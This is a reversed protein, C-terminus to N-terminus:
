RTKREYKCNEREPKGNHTAYKCRWTGDGLKIVYKCNMCNTLTFVKIEDMKFTCKHFPKYAFDPIKGGYLSTLYSKIYPSLESPM